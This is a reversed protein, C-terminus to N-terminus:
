AAGPPPAPPSGPAGVAGSPPTAPGGSGGGTKGRRMMLLAVAAIVVILIVIGAGILLLNSGSSGSGLLGGSHATPASASASPHSTGVSNAAEVEFYYTTGSSLSSVTASTGTGASLSTWPGTTSTAYLVTYGTISAGGTNSPAQWTLAVTSTTTAGTTVGGPPYPVGLPVGSVPSVSPGTGSGGTARVTTYYTTGDTLGSVSLSTTTTTGASTWPGSASSSTYVDYSTVPFGSPGTAATWSVNLTTNGGHANLGSVASPLAVLNALFMEGSETTAALAGTAPDVAPYGIQGPVHFTALVAGTTANLLALPGGPGASDNAVLVANLQPVFDLANVAIPSPLFRVKAWTGASYVQIGLGGFSENGVFLAGSANFNAAYGQPSGSVNLVTGHSAVTDIQTINGLFCSLDAVVEAVPSASLSCPDSNPALQITAAWVFTGPGGATSYAQITENVTDTVYLLHGFGFADYEPNFSLPLTGLLAGTTASYAWVGDSGSAYVAGDAADPTVWEGQAGGPFPATWAIVGTTEHLAVLENPGSGIEYFMGTAPDAVLDFWDDPSAPYTTVVVAYPPGSAPLLVLEGAAVSYSGSTTVYGTGNPADFPVLDTIADYWPESANSTEWFIVGSVPDIGYLQDGTGTTNGAALVLWGTSPDSVLAYPTAAGEQAMGLYSGTNNFALITGNGTANLFYVDGTIASYAGPGVLFGNFSAVDFGGDVVDLAPTGGLLVVDAYASGSPVVVITGLGFYEWEFMGWESTCGSSSPLSCPNELFTALTNTTVNVAFQDQTSENEVLLQNTGYDYLERYPLFSPVGSSAFTINTIWHFTAADLVAVLGVYETGDYYEMGVYLEGSRNDYAIDFGQGYATDNTLLISRLVTGTTANYATVLTSSVSVSYVTDTANDAAIRDNQAAGPFQSTLTQYVRGGASVPSAPRAGLLVAGFAASGSHTAAAAHTPLGAVRASAGLVGVPAILLAVIALSISLLAVGHTPRIRSM